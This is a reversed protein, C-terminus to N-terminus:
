WFISSIDFVYRQRFEDSWWKDNGLYKIGFNFVDGKSNRSLIAKYSNFCRSIIMVSVRLLTWLM